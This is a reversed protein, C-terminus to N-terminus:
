GGVSAVARRVRRLIARSVRLAAPLPAPPPAEGAGARARREDVQRRAEDRRGELEAIHAELNARHAEHWAVGEELLRRQEEGWARAADVEKRLAALQADAWGLNYALKGVQEGQARIVGPPDDAWARLSYEEPAGAAFLADLAEPRRLLADYTLKTATFVDPDALVDAPTSGHHKLGRDVFGALAADRPSGAEVPPLGLFGLIPALAARHDPFFGEYAVVIREGPGTNRLAAETYRQWLALARRREMGNRAVLSAAVDLPNRVCVVCRLDPVLARWFPLTLSARPDKWGWVAGADPAGFSAALFAAAEARLAGLGADEHWGAPLTPPHDWTGGFHALIRDDFEIFRAHEWHGARNSENAPVLDGEGGLDVGCLNLMRAVMSTGSRHMGLIAVAM